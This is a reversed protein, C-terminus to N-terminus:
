PSESAQDLLELLAKKPVMKRRRLQVTPLVKRAALEYAHARSVGLLVAAEEISVVLREDAMVAPLPLPARTPAPDPPPSPAHCCCAHHCRRGDGGTPLAPEM